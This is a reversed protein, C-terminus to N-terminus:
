RGHAAAELQRRGPAGGATPAPASPPACLPLPLPPRLPPPLRTCRCRCCHASPRFPPLSCRRCPTSATLAIGLSACTHLWPLSRGATRLGLGREATRAPRPLPAPAPFLRAHMRTRRGGHLRGRARGFAGDARTHIPRLPRDGDAAAEREKRLHPVGLSPVQGLCPLACAAPAACPPARALHRASRPPDLARLRASFFREIAVRLLPSEGRARALRARRTTALARVAFQLRLHSDLDFCESHCCELSRVPTSIRTLSLPCRLTLNVATQMLEDDDHEPFCKALLQARAAELPPTPMARLRGLLEAPSLRRVLRVIAVCSQQVVASLELQNVPQWPLEAIESLVLIEDVPRVKYRNAVADWVPPPLRLSLERGNVSMGLQVPWRHCPTQSRLELVYLRLQYQPDSRLLALEELSLRLTGTLRRNSTLSSLEHRLLLSVSEAGAVPECTPDADALCCLECVHSAAAPEHPRMALCALHQFTGCQVCRVMLGSPQAAAPCVCRVRMSAGHADLPPASPSIGPAQPAVSPGGMLRSLIELVKIAGRSSPDNCHALIRQILEAKRGQRSAGLMLLVDKLTKVNLKSLDTGV